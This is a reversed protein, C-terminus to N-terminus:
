FTATDNLRKPLASALDPYHWPAWCSAVLIAFLSLLPRWRLNENEWRYKSTTPSVIGVYCAHRLGEIWPFVRAKSWTIVFSTGGMKGIYVCENM